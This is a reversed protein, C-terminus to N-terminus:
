EPYSSPGRTTLPFTRQQAPHPISRGSTRQVSYAIGSLAVFAVLSAPFTFLFDKEVVLLAKTLEFIRNPFCRSCLSRASITLSDLCGRPQGGIASCLRDWIIPPLSKCGAPERTRIRQSETKRENRELQQLQLADISMACSVRVGYRFRLSPKRVRGTPPHAANWEAGIGMAVEPPSTSSLPRWPFIEENSLPGEV